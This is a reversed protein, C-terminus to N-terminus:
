YYLTFTYHYLNDTIFTRDAKCYTFENLMDTIITDNSTRFIFTIEYMKTYTYLKNSAKLAEGVNQNYVICPYSLSINSPPQYYVNKSGLITTLKNHLALRDAM